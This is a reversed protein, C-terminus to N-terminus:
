FMELMFIFFDSIHQYIYWAASLGYMCLHSHLHLIWYLHSNTFYVWIFCTFNFYLFYSEYIPSSRTHLLDFSLLFVHIQYFQRVTVSRWILSSPWFTTPTKPAERPRPPCRLSRRSSLLWRMWCVSWQRSRSNFHLFFVSIFCLFCRSHLKLSSWSLKLGWMIGAVCGRCTSGDKPTWMNARESSWTPPRDWSAYPLLSPSHTWWGCCSPSTTPADKLCLCRWWYMIVVECMLFPRQLRWSTVSVEM